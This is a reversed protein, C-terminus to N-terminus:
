EFVFNEVCRMYIYIYIPVGQIRQANGIFAMLVMVLMLQVGQNQQANGIFAMLVMVLM